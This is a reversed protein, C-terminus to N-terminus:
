GQRCAAAGDLHCGEAWKCKEARGQPGSRTQEKRGSRMCGDGALQHV